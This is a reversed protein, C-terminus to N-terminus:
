QPFRQLKDKRYETPTFNTQGKFAKNFPALSQYGLSYAIELITLDVKDPDSLITCAEKVRLSNLFDNFNSYGLHRNILRRLKYEQCGIKDALKGITLGESIYIKEENLSHNLKDWIREYGVDELTLKSMPQVKPAAIFYNPRFRLNALSFYFALGAITLKQFSELYIPADKNGLAVEAVLTVIVLASTLYIFTRRFRIRQEVLDM